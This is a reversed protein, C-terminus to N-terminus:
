EDPPLKEGQVGVAQRGLPPLVREDLSENPLHGIVGERLAVAVRTVERCCAEELAEAAVLECSSQSAMVKGGMGICGLPRLGIREGPLRADGKARRGFPGRCQTRMVLCQIEELLRDSHRRVRCILSIQMLTSM